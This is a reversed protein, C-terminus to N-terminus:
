LRRREEDSNYDSFSGGDNSKWEGLDVMDDVFAPYAPGHGHQQSSVVGLDQGHAASAIASRAGRKRMMASDQARKYQLLM